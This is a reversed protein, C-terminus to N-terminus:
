FNAGNEIISIKNSASDIDSVYVVPAPMSQNALALREAVGEFDIKIGNLKGFSSNGGVQGGGAFNPVGISRFFASGGARAQQEKNLIVEGQGVYALTDDGNSLPVELNSGNNIVGSSLKPIIGGGAKTPVKTSVIKKVNILGAALIGAAAIGKAIAGAPEPLVSQASLVSTMGLYANITAQAIAAAKGAATSEGLLESIGGFANAAAQLKAAEKAKEINEQVKAHKATILTTDAGTKEAAKIEAQYRIEERAADLDYQNTFKEEDLIRQNELNIADQEKKAEDRILQAEENKIRTNENILDIADNYAQQNIQGAELKAQQFEIEKEKIAENELVLQNLKEQTFFKDSDIKQQHNAMYNDLERQAEAVGIDAIKKATDNTAAISAANFATQTLKKADYEQKLIALKRDLVQKEFAIEDEVSKKKFGQNAIFVNLEDKSKQISADVLKQKEQEAKQAAAEADQQAKEQKAKADEQLKDQANQNKELRKTSEDQIAIKSLEAKKIAEVEDDTIKGKNLLVTAYATGLKQLNAIEQNTLGGKIRAAEISQAIDKNALSERQKFNNTEVAEAAKLANLREQESLTRNKSKLILENYQAIARANSVEQINQADALDQQAEKLSAAENAANNMETGLKKLSDIPHAIFNGLKNLADGVSTIGTVFEGITRQIVRFAASLGAIAQEVKDVVPDFTKFYSILIAIAAIILGIGTMALAVTFIRVAGTGLNTAIAMAKQATSLENTGAAANKIQDAGGKIDSKAASFLDKFAGLSQQAGQLKGSFLGTDNLAGTIATRYDGIGIKQQEYASVNAKIFQNNQDLKGNIQELAQKGEDTKLNLQNRLALLQTNNERAAAISTNEKAVASTIANTATAFSNNATSLQTVVSKQQNYSTQLRSLEVVNKQFSESTTQNNATLQKQSAQLREIEGRTEAMKTILASTNIDLNLIEVKNAM